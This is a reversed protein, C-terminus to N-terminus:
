PPRARRPHRKSSCLRAATEHEIVDRLIISRLRRIVFLFTPAIRLTVPVRATRRFQKGAIVHRAANHPLNAFPPSSRVAANKEIDGPDLVTQRVCRLVDLSLQGAHIVLELLERIDIDGGFGHLNTRCRMVHHASHAHVGIRLHGVHRTQERGAFAGGTQM